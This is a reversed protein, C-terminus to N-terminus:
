AGKSGITNPNQQTQNMLAWIDLTGDTRVQSMALDLLTRAVVSESVAYKEATAKIVEEARPTPRVSIVGGVKSKKRKAM